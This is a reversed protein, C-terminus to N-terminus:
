IQKIGVFITVDDCIDRTFRETGAVRSLVGAGLGGAAAEEGLLFDPM